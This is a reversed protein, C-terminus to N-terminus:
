VFSIEASALVKPPISKIIFKRGGDTEIIGSTLLGITNTQFIQDLLLDWCVKKGLVMSRLMMLWLANASIFKINHKIIDAYFRKAKKGVISTCMPHDPPLLDTEEGGILLYIQFVKSCKNKANHEDILKRCENNYSPVQLRYNNENILYDFNTKSECIIIKNGSIVCIDLRGDRPNNSKLIEIEKGIRSTDNSSLFNLVSCGWLSIHLTEHHSTFESFSRIKRNGLYIPLDIINKNFIDSSNILRSMTDFNPIIKKLIDLTRQHSIGWKKQSSFCLLCGICKDRDIYLSEEKIFLANLTINNCTLRHSNSLTNNELFNKFKTFKPQNSYTPIEVTNFKPYLGTADNSLLASNM